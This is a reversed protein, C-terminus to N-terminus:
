AQTNGLEANIFSQLDKLFDDKHELSISIGSKGPKWEGYQEYIERINYWKRGNYEGEYAILMTRGKDHVLRPNKPVYGNAFSMKTFDVM